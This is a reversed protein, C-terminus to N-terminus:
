NVKLKSEIKITKEFNGIIANKNLKNDFLRLKGYYSVEQYSEFVFKTPYHVVFKRKSNGFLGDVYIEKENEKFLLIKEKDFKGSGKYFLLNNLKDKKIIEIQENLEFPFELINKYTLSKEEFDVFFMQEIASYIVKKYNEYLNISNALRDSFYKNIINSFNKEVQFDKIIEGNRRSIIVKNEQLSIEKFFDFFKRLVENTSKYLIGSDFIFNYSSTDDFSILIRKINYKLTIENENISLVEYCFEWGYRNLVNNTNTLEIIKEKQEFLIEQGFKEGVECNIVVEKGYVYYFAGCIFFLCVFIVCRMKTLLM